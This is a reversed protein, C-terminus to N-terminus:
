DDRKYLLKTAGASNMSFVQLPSSAAVTRAHDIAAHLAEDETAFEAPLDVEHAQYADSLGQIWAQLHWRRERHSIIYVASM